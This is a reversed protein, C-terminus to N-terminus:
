QDYEDQEEEGQKEAIAILRDLDFDPHDPVPFDEWYEQEEVHESYANAEEDDIEWVGKLIRERTPEVFNGPPTPPSLDDQAYDASLTPM